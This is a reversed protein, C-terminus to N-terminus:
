RIPPFHGSRRLDLLLKAHAFNCRIGSKSRDFIPQEKIFL